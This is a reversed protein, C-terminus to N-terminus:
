FLFEYNISKTGSGEGIKYKQGVPHFHVVIKLNNEAIGGLLHCTKSKNMNLNYYNNEEKM